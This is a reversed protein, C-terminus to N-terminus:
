NTLIDVIKLYVAHTNEEWNKCIKRADSKSGTAIDVSLMCLGNEEIRLKAICRNEDDPIYNAIVASTNKVHKKVAGISRDIMKKRSAPLLGVMEEVIALGKETILYKNGKENSDSIHGERILENLYQQMVFFGMYGGDLVVKTLAVNSVGMDLYSLIYLLMLKKEAISKSDEIREM